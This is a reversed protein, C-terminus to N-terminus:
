RNSAAVIWYLLANDFCCCLTDLDNAQHRACRACKSGCKRVLIHNTYAACVFCLLVFTQNGKVLTEKQTRHEIFLHEIFGKLM